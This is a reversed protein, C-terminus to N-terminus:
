KYGAISSSLDPKRGIYGSLYATLRAILAFQAPAIFLWYFYPCTSYRRNRHSNEIRNGGIRLPPNNVDASAFGNFAYNDLSGVGAPLPAVHFRRGGVFGSEKAQAPNATM